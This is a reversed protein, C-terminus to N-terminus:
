GKPFLMKAIKKAEALVKEEGSFVLPTRRTIEIVNGDAFDELTEIQVLHEEPLVREQLSIPDDDKQIPIVRKRLVAGQDYEL